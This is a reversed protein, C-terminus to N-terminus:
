RKEDSTLSSIIVGNEPLPFSVFLFWSLLILPLFARHAIAAIGYNARSQRPPSFLSPSRRPVQSFPVSGLREDESPCSLWFAAYGFFNFFFFLTILLPVPLTKNYVQRALSPFTRRLSFFFSSDPKPSMRFSRPFTVKPGAMFHQRSHSQSLSVLSVYPRFFLSLGCTSVQARLLSPHFFYGAVACLSPAAWYRSLPPLRLSAGLSHNRASSFFLSM